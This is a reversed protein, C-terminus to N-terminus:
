RSRKHCKGPTCVRTRSNKLALAIHSFGAVRFENTDDSPDPDDAGFSSIGIIMLKRKKAGDPPVYVPGGSDGGRVVISNDKRVFRKQEILVADGMHYTVDRDSLVGCVAKNSTQGSQCVADGEHDGLTRKNRGSLVSVDGLVYHPYTNAGLATMTIRVFRASVGNLTHVRPIGQTAGAVTAQTTVTLGDSSTEVRYDRAFGGANWEVRVSELANSSQLDVQWWQTQNDAGIAESSWLTGEDGDVGNSAPRDDYPNNPDGHDETSANAPRSLSLTREKGVKIVKGRRAKPKRPNRMDVYAGGRGGAGTAILAADATSRM